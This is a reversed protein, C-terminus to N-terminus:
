RVQGRDGLTFRAACRQGSATKGMTQRRYVRPSMGYENRFAHNFNSVDGFGCDLAIDLIRAPEQALRMASERLRTRLIYQHPTTGTLREFVRLFHYPSLGAERALNGVGLRAEPHREITRVARTVRALAVPAPPMTEPSLGAMLQMTQVALKISLEEWLGDLCSSRPRLADVTEVMGACARSVLPSLARLPPLRPVPFTTSSGRGGGDSRLREFYHPTYQFALCRDGASHEHGCEFWQGVNGLLLSGPTMLERGSPARYQFTGAVVIAISVCGHREEFPRDQPGSNCVVDSVSWGNGEALVRSAAQGPTGDLARQALAQKVVMEIKAL